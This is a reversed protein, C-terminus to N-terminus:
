QSNRTLSKTDSPEFLLFASAASPPGCGCLPTQLSLSNSYAGSSSYNRGAGRNRIENAKQRFRFESLKKCFFKCLFLFVGHM